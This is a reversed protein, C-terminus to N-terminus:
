DSNEDFWPKYEEPTDRSREIRRTLLMADEESFGCWTTLLKRLDSSSPQRSSFGFLSALYRLLRQIWTGQDEQWATGRSHNVLLRQITRRSQEYKDKYAGQYGRTATICAHGHSNFGYQEISKENKKWWQEMDDYEELHTVIVVVPVQRNCFVKAFLNYTQQVSSTIRGGKMCFMVLSIGGSRKLKSILTCAQYVSDLYDKTKMDAVAEHLGVTDHLAFEIGGLSVIYEESQLTCSVADHSTRALQRGAILNIVSSKGAGVDGVILINRRNSSDYPPPSSQSPISM